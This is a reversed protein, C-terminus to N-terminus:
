GQLPRSASSVADAKTDGCVEIMGPSWTDELVHRAHAARAYGLLLDRFSAEDLGRPLIAMFQVTHAKEDIRLRRILGTRQPLRAESRLVFWTTPSRVASVGILQIDLWRLTGAFGPSRMGDKDLVLYPTKRGHWLRISWLAVFGLGVAGAAAIGFLLRWAERDQAGGYLAALVCSASVLLCVSGLLALGLVPRLSSAHLVTEGLGDAARATRHLRAARADQRQLGRQRLQGTIEGSLANWDAFLARVDGLDAPDVPRAARALLAADIAVGAAEIRQRSPPHTDTPHPAHDSLHAAPDGAQDMRAVLAAALDAAAADPQEAIAAREAGLLNSSLGLRLLSSALAAPSGSAVAGRDAELERLHSWHAVVHDFREFAYVALATHPHVAREFLRDVRTSGWVARDRLSMAEAGQGLAAFLPAFRLGYETDEGSFHALEHALVARLEALDLVALEPLPLHLVRGRTVSPGAEAHLLRPFATVFFGGEAGAVVTEPLTTGREGALDHLLAFLGPARAPTLPVGSLALPMPEFVRVARRLNRLTGAAGRLILGAGLVVLIALLVMRGDPDPVFWLGSAEFAVAAALALGAGAVQMGLLVPLVRGVREFAAVLRLRSRMGRRASMQVLLLGGLGTAGTAAGAGLTLWALGQRLRAVMLDTKVQEPCAAATDVLAPDQGQRPTRVAGSRHVDALGAIEARMAVGRKVQWAGLGSFLLPLALLTLILSREIGLDVLWSRKM